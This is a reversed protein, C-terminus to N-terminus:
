SGLHATDRSVLSAPSQFYRTGGNPHGACRRAVPRIRPKSVITSKPRPQIAYWQTVTDPWRLSASTVSVKVTRLSGYERCTATVQSYGGGAAGGKIGFTPGQSPQRVCTMARRGLHAGLAQSLGVTTTSKGEGLPTPSIGAVVVAGLRLSVCLLLRGEHRGSSRPRQPHGACTPQEHLCPHQSRRENTMEGYMGNQRDKLKELM